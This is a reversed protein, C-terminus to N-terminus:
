RFETRLSGLQANDEAVRRAHAEAAAAAEASSAELAQERAAVAAKAAEVQRPHHSMKALTVPMQVAGAMSFRKSTNFKSTNFCRCGLTLLL